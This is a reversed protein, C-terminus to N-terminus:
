EITNRLRILLSLLEALTGVMASLPRVSSRDGQRWTVPVARVILGRKVAIAIVEVDWAWRDSRCTSLLTRAVEGRILKFGCNFDSLPLGSIKRAISAYVAGMFRRLLPQPEEIRAELTRRNGTVIDAGSALEPIFKGLMGPPTSMDADFILVMDGKTQMVGSRVAAGKGRNNDHHILFIEPAESLRAAILHTKDQSGDDVIVIEWDSPSLQEFVEALASVAKELVREENYAPIVGSIVM